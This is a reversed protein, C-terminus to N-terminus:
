NREELEFLLELLTTAFCGPDLEFETVWAGDVAHHRFDHVATFLKRWAIGRMFLRSAQRDVKEPIAEPFGMERYWRAVFPDPCYLPISEGKLEVRGSLVAALVQNFWYAQYAGTWFGVERRLSDVASEFSGTSLVADILRYEIDMQLQVYVRGLVEKMREFEIRIRAVSCTRRRAEVEARAWCEGLTRRIAHTERRREHITTETVFQKIAAEAGYLLLTQGIQHGNQRRAFRQPGYGNPFRMGAQEIPQLHERVYEEIERRRWGALRVTIAFRNAVFDGLNAGGEVITADKIFSAPGWNGLPEPCCARAVTAYDARGVVIRQATRARRDKQGFITIDDSNVGFLHALDAVADPTRMLRKVLTVAVFGTERRSFMGDAEAGLDSEVGTTCCFGKHRELVCFDEPHHKLAGKSRARAVYHRLADPVVNGDLVGHM